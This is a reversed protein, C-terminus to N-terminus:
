LLILILSWLVQLIEINSRIKDTLYKRLENLVNRTISYFFFIMIKNDPVEPVPLLVKADRKPLRSPIEVTKDVSVILCIM